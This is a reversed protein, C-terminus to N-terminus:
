SAVSLFHQSQLLPETERQFMWGYAMTKKGNATTLLSEGSLRFARWAAPNGSAAQLSTRGATRVERNGNMAHDLLFTETTSSRSADTFRWRWRHRAVDPDLRADATNGETSLWQPPVASPNTAAVVYTDVSSQELPYADAAVTPSAPGWVLGPIIITDTRYRYIEIRENRDTAAVRTIVLGAGGHIRFPPDRALTAVIFRPPPVGWLAAVAASWTAATTSATGGTVTHTVGEPGDSADLVEFGALDDVPM